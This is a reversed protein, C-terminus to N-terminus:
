HVRGSCRSSRPLICFTEFVAQCVISTEKDTRPGGLDEAIIPNSGIMDKGGASRRAVGAAPTSVNRRIRVQIFSSGVVRRPLGELVGNGERPELTPPAHVNRQRGVSRRWEKRGEM